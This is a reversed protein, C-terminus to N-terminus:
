CEFNGVLRSTGTPPLGGQRTASLGGTLSRKWRPSKNWDASTCRYLSNSCLTTYNGVLRSTGTPPLKVLGNAAKNALLTELSAVQELRRFNDQLGHSTPLLYLVTELSAVQELRRFCTTPLRAAMPNKHKWRPSKNWDASPQWVDLATIVDRTELSAVQELRRFPSVKYGQGLM